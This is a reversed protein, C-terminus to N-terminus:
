IYEWNHIDALEAGINNQKELTWNDTVGTELWTDGSKRFVQVSLGYTHQFERELQTVSMQPFVAISGSRHVKRCEGITRVPSILYKEATLQGAQHPMSFFELKLYPFLRTFEAQIASIHKNDDIRIEM